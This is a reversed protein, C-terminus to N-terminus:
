FQARKRSEVLVLLVLFKIDFPVNHRGSPRVVFGLRRQSGFGNQISKDHSRLLGTDHVWLSSGIFLFNCAKLCFLGSPFQFFLVFWFAVQFFLLDHNAGLDLSGFHNRLFLLKLELEILLQFKLFLGHFDFFSKFLEKRRLGFLFVVGRKFNNSQFVIFTFRLRSDFSGSRRFFTAEIIYM